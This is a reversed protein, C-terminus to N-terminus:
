SKRSQMKAIPVKAGDDSTLVEVWCELIGQPQEKSPHWLERFEVPVYFQDLKKVERSVETLERILQDMEKKLAKDKKAKKKTKKAKEVRIALSRRLMYLPNSYLRDELDIVTRGILQDAIPIFARDHIEIELKWEEPFM